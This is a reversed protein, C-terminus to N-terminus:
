ARKRVRDGFKEKIARQTADMQARSFPQANELKLRHALEELAARVRIPVAEDTVIRVLDENTLCSMDINGRRAARRMVHQTRYYVRGDPDPNDTAPLGLLSAM